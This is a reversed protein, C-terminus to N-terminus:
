IGELNGYLKKKIKPVRLSSNQIFVGAMIFGLGIFASPLIAEGIVLYIMFLSIFPLVFIINALKYPDGCKLASQWTIYAVPV